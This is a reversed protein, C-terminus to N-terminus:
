KNRKKNRKKKKKKSKKVIVDVNDNKEKLPDKERKLFGKIRQLCEDQKEGIKCLYRRASRLSAQRTTVRPPNVEFDISDRKLNEPVEREAGCYACFEWWGDIYMECNECKTKVSEGCRPCVVFGPELDFSCAPCKVLGSTELQLYKKELENLYREEYSDAPRVLLYIILGFINFLLSVVVSFVKFVINSSRESADFWVWIVVMVWFFLYVYFFMRLIVGFDINGVFSVSDLIINEM